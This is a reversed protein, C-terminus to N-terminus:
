FWKGAHLCDTWSFAFLRILVFSNSLADSTIWTILWNNHSVTSFRSVFRKYQELSRTLVLCVAVANLSLYIAPFVVNQL